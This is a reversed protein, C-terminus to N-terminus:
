QKHPTTAARYAMRMSRRLQADDLQPSVDMADYGWQELVGNLVQALESIMGRRISKHRSVRSSDLSESTMARIDGFGPSPRNAFAHELVANVDCPEGLFTFLASLTELPSEVLDEYRLAYCLDSHETSLRYLTRNIDAWAHAFASLPQPFRSVYDHLEFVYAGTGQVFESLSVAVDLGHRCVLVYRCHRGCFRVISEAHFADFASKEAWRRKGHRDRNERFFSFALERVRQQVEAESFGLLSLGTVPGMLMDGGHREERLFRACASLLNTEPPCCFAPHSDILRRLLTTGSRPCGLIVVGEYDKENPTSTM